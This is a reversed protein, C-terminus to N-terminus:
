SDKLSDNIIKRLKNWLKLTIEADKEAYAGVEM